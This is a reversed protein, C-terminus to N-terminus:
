TWLIGRLQQKRGGNLSVLKTHTIYAQLIEDWDVVIRNSLTFKERMLFM